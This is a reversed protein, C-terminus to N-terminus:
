KVWAPLYLMTDGEPYCPWENKTQCEALKLLTAQYDARGKEIFSDSAKFLQHAYPAEREVVLFKFETKPETTGCLANWLDLYFAAQIHYGMKYANAEFGRASADETFKLDWIAPGDPVLDIRAKCAMGTATETTFLSLERKGPLDGYVAQVSDVAALVQMYLNHKVPIKGSKDLVERLTKGEKTRGDFNAPLVHYEELEEPKLLCAHALTGFLMAETPEMPESLSAKYHGPTTQWLKKLRSASVMNVAHYSAAPMDAHVGSLQIIDSM